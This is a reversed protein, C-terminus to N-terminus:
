RAICVRRDAVPVDTCIIPCNVVSCVVKGWACQSFECANAPTAPALTVLMGVSLAAATLFRTM